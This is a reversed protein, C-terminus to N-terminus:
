IRMASIVNYMTPTSQGYGLLWPTVGIQCNTPLVGKAIVSIARVQGSEFDLPLVLGAKQGDPSALYRTSSTYVLSPAAVCRFIVGEGQVSSVSAVSISRQEAVTQLAPVTFDPLTSYEKIRLTFNPINGSSTASFGLNFAALVIQPTTAAPDPIIWVVSDATTIEPDMTGDAAVSATMALTPAAVNPVNEYARIAQLFDALTGITTGFTMDRFSVGKKAQVQPMTLNRIRSFDVQVSPSNSISSM